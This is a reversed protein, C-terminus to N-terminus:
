RHLPQQVHDDLLPVLSCTTVQLMARKVCEIHGGAAAATRDELDESNDEAQMELQREVYLWSDTMYYDIPAKLINLRCTAAVPCCTSPVGVLDFGNKTQMDGALPPQTLPLHRMCATAKGKPDQFANLSVDLGLGRGLM